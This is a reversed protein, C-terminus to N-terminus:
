VESGERLIRRAREVVPLDIMEGNVALVGEGSAEFEDVVRRAWAVERESPSFARNVIPVQQPHICVKGRFGLSRAFAAQQELGADDEIELHVIDFPARIAAAASDVVVRSRAHLIELGDARPELGLEAGLDVAGLVLAAVRPSCATEYALRLGQATEVIAIVPPGEGGLAAVADPTAKPLMLADLDLETVLALDDAFWETGAGNVRVVPPAVRAVVDRAAPKEAPAVADELDAVVLDAESALATALKREDSGPAFM